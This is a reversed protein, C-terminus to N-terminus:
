PRACTPTLSASAREGLSRARAAEHAPHPTAAPSLRLLVSRKHRTSLPQVLGRELLPDVLAQIHQRSVRRSRAVNPVTTPGNRLLFELVARQGMTISEGAHLREGRQVLTNWLLRVEDILEELPKEV